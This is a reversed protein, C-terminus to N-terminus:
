CPHNKQSSDNPYQVQKTHRNLFKNQGIQGPNNKPRGHFNSIPKPTPEEFFNIFPSERDFQSLVPDGHFLLNAKRNVKLTPQNPLIDSIQDDTPSNDNLELANLPNTGIM